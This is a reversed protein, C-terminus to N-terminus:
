NAKPQLSSQDLVQLFFTLLVCQDSESKQGKDPSDYCPLQLRIYAKVKRSAAELGCLRSLHCTQEIQIQELREPRVEGTLDFVYDFAGFGEPPEFATKVREPVQLNLQKYEVNDQALIRPFLAGIYSNPLVHSPNGICCLLPHVNNPTRSLVQRRHPPVPHSHSSSRFCISASRVNVKRDGDVPVLLAALHRSYTNV